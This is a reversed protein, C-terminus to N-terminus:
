SLISDTREYVKCVQLKRKRLSSIAPPTRAGAKDNQKVSIQTEILLKLHNTGTTGVTDAPACTINDPAIGHGPPNCHIEIPVDHM